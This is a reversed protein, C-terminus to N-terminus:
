VLASNTERESAKGSCLEIIEAALSYYGTMEVPKVRYQAGQARIEARDAPPAISTLVIVHIHNLVPDQRIAALIELGNFKPLYFDLLIVCPARERTGARHEAVYNLAAEGDSLIELQYAVGQRDLAHRLTLIDPLNDEIVLITPTSM